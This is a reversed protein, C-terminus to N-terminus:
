LNEPLPERAGHAATQAGANIRRLFHPFDLGLARELRRAAAELGDPISQLAPSRIGFLVTNDDESVPVVSKGANLLQSALAVHEGIEHASGVLNVVLVGHASLRQALNRYFVPESASPAVGIRDYADVLIVDFEETSRAVFAAGDAEVVKLRADDRPLCFEDRLAIVEPNSEVVTIACGSLHHHCYKALSGGGLGIMLIQRPRPVFLLFAMMKRTYPVILELPNGIAM